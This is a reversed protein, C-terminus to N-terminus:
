AEGIRPPQVPSGNDAEAVVYHSGRRACLDGGLRLDARIPFRYPVRKWLEGLITTASLPAAVVESGAPTLAAGPARAPIMQEAM